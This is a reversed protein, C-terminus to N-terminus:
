WRIRTGLMLARDDAPDSQGRRVGIGLEVDKTAVYNVGYAIQRIPTSSAPDPNTDRQLSLTLWVKEVAEFLVSGSASWLSNREGLSNRNRTYGAAFRFEFPDREYGLAVLGGYTLKGTGLGREERGTPLTIAPQLAASLGERELFLWRFNVGVDRLGKNVERMDGAAVVEREYPFAVEVHTSETTGYRLEANTETARISADGERDRIRDQTLQLRWRGKGVVGTEETLVPHDARAPAAVLLALLLAFRCENRMDM